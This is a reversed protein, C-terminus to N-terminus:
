HLQVALVGEEARALVPGHAAGRPRPARQQHGVGGRPQLALALEGRQERGGGRARQAVVVHQVAAHHHVHEVVHGAPQFLPAVGGLAPLAAVHGRGEGALQGDAPQVVGRLAVVRQAVGVQEVAGVEKLGVRQVQAVEAAVRALEAFLELRADPALEERRGLADFFLYALEPPVARQIQKLLLPDERLSNWYGHDYRQVGPAPRQQLTVVTTGAVWDGLRQGHRSLLACAGGVGYALPLLDVFRLVNRLVVQRLALPRRQLVEDPEVGVARMLALTRAYGGLLIHQGNDLAHAGGDDSRARGGPMAAAEFLALEHGRECARVAAALGAWGILYARFAEEM